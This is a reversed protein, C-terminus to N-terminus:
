CFRPALTALALRGASRGQDSPAIPRPLSSLEGSGGGLSGPESVSGPHYEDDPQPAARIPKRKFLRNSLLALLIVVGWFVVYEFFSFFYISAPTSGRLAPIQLIGFRSIAIAHEPVSVLGGLLTFTIAPNGPVRLAVWRLLLGVLSYIGAAAFPALVQNIPSAFHRYYSNWFASYLIAALLGWFLASALVISWWPISRFGAPKLRWALLIWMLIALAIAIPTNEAM